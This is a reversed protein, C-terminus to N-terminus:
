TRSNVMHPFLWDNRINKFNREFCIILEYRLILISLCYFKFSTFLYFLHILSISFYIIFSFFHLYDFFSFYICFTEFCIIASFHHLHFSSLLFHFIKSHFKFFCYFRYLENNLAIM